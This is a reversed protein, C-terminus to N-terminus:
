QLTGGMIEVLTYEFPISVVDVARKMILQAKGDPVLEKFVDSFNKSVQACASDHFSVVLFPLSLALNSHSADKTSRSNKQTNGGYPTAM